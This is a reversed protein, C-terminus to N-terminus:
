WSKWTARGNWGSKGYRIKVSPNPADRCNNLLSLLTNAVRHFFRGYNKMLKVSETPFHVQPIPYVCVIRYWLRTCIVFIYKDANRLRLDLKGWLHSTTLTKEERKHHKNITCM